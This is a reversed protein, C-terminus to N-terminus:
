AVAGQHIKVIMLSLWGEAPLSEESRDSHCSQDQNTIFMLLPRVLPRYM